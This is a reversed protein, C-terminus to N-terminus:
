AKGPRLVQGAIGDISRTDFLWEARRGTDKFLDDRRLERFLTDFERLMRLAVPQLARIEAQEERPAVEAKSSDPLNGFRGLLEFYSSILSDLASTVAKRVKHEPQELLNALRAIKVIGPDTLADFLDHWQADNDLPHKSFNMKRILAVRCALLNVLRYCFRKLERYNTLLDPRTDMEFQDFIDRLHTDGILTGLNSAIDGNRTILRRKLEFVFGPNFVPRMETLVQFYRNRASANRKLDETILAQANIIPLYRNELGSRVDEVVLIPVGRETIIKKLEFDWENNICCYAMRNWCTVALQLLAEPGETEDAGEPDYFVSFEIDSDDRKELRGCSGYVGVALHSSYLGARAFHAASATLQTLARTSRVIQVRVAEPYGVRLLPAHGDLYIELPLATTYADHRPTELVPVAIKRCSDVVNALRFLSAHDIKKTLEDVSKPVLVKYPLVKEREVPEVAHHEHVFESFVVFIASRDVEWLDKRILNLGERGNKTNDLNLDVIVIQNEGHLAKYNYLASARFATMREVDYGRDALTTAIQAAHVDEDEIVLLKLKRETSIVM